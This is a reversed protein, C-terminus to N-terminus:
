ENTAASGTSPCVRSIQNQVRKAKSPMSLKNCTKRCTYTTTGTANSTQDYYSFEGLKCSDMVFFLQSSAHGKGEGFTMGSVNVSATPVNRRVLRTDMTTVKAHTANFNAYAAAHEM